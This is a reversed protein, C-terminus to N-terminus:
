VVLSTNALSESLWPACLPENCVQFYAEYDGNQPRMLVTHTTLRNRNPHASLVQFLGRFDIQTNYRERLCHEAPARRNDYWPEHPIDWNTQVLSNQGAKVADNLLWHGVVATAERAVIAGDGLSAGGIIVYAPGLLKVNQIIDLAESYSSNTTMVDRMALSLFQGTRDKGELFALLDTWREFKIRSNLTISFSGTKSGTIIGIYGLFVTTNFVVQGGRMVRINRLLPRLDETLTWQLHKWDEGFLLGFDLNRGHMINGQADQAVISTCGGEVEYMM